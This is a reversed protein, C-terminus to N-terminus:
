RRGDPPPRGAVREHPEEPENWIKMHLNMAPGRPVVGDQDLEREDPREAPPLHAPRRDIPDHKPVAEDGLADGVEIRHDEAQLEQRSRAAPAAQERRTKARTKGARARM